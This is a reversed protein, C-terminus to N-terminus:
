CPIIIISKTGNKVHEFNLESHTVDAYIKAVTLGLGFGSQDRTMSMDQQQFPKSLQQILQESMGGGEDVIEISLQHKDVQEFLKFSLYLIKKQPTFKIANTVICSVMKIIKDWDVKMEHHKNLDISIDLYQSKTEALEEFKSFPKSFNRSISGLAPRNTLRDLNAQSVILINEIQEQMQSSALKADDILPQMTSDSADYAMLDLNGMIGNLPTRLEHSIISLFEDKATNLKNSEALANNMMSNAKLLVKKAEIISSHQERMLLRMRYALASSLLIAEIAGGFQISKTTIFNPSIVGKVTLNYTLLGIILFSWSILYFYAPSYGAKVTKIGAYFVTFMFFINVLTVITLAHNKSIFIAIPIGAYAMYKFMTMIKHYHPLLEKTKLFHQSFGFAGHFFVGLITFPITEQFKVADPWIYNYGLGSAYLAFIIVSSLYFSYYLFAKDKVSFYIYLNYLGLALMVGLCLANVLNNKSESDFFKEVTQLSIPLFLTSDGYIKILLSYRQNNEISLRISQSPTRLARSSNPRMDGLRFQKILSADSGVLYGDIYDIAANDVSFIWDQVESRNELDLKLWIPNKQYGFYFQKKSHESFLQPNNYLNEWSDNQLSEQFYVQVHEPSLLSEGNELIVINASLCSSYLLTIWLFLSRIILEL